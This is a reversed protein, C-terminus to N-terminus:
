LKSKLRSASHNRPPSRFGAVKEPSCSPAFEWIADLFRPVLFTCIVFCRTSQSDCFVDNEFTCAYLSFAGVQFSLAHTDPFRALGLGLHMRIPFVRWGWALTCAYRSFTGVGPWSAHMSPFRAPPPCTCAYRSFAGASPRLAHTHSFPGPSIPMQTPPMDPPPKPAHTPPCLAGRTRFCGTPCETAM